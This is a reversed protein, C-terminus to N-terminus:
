IIAGDAVAQVRFRASVQATQEFYTKYRRQAFTALAACLLAGSRTHLDFKCLPSSIQKYCRTEAQEIEGIM